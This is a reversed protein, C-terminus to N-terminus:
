SKRDGDAPLTFQFVAGRPENRTAWLRGSHAEIISRSIALGMGMGEPKTTYFADFLRALTEPDLGPGSDRVAVLVGQSEDKGSSVRLERPGEAVGSMAEVANKILNLIVQQLQIRDGQIPSLDNSLQTQLSIGNKHVESSTLSVVELIVENIDLWDKQPPAKKVLARIRGIVEGARNGDKVIRGLAQRAEEMDPPQAALWRLGAAANTVLAALPQNVEHAIAATMEAVTTM